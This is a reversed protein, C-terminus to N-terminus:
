CCSNKIGRFFPAELIAPDQATLASPGRLNDTLFRDLQALVEARSFPTTLLDDAEGSELLPDGEQDDLSTICIRAPLAHTPSGALAKAYLKLIEPSGFIVDAYNMHTATLNSSDEKRTTINSEHLYRTLSNQTASGDLAIMAHLPRKPRIAPSAPKLIKAPLNFSFRSGEDLASKVSIEGNMDRVIKSCIALGLGSGGFKRTTSQDEQTFAEFIQRQKEPAIGIGTDTVSFEIADPGDPRKLMQVSVLISGKETFKIANNVLNSLLQNLRTPDGEIEEPTDTSIHAALDLGESRAREYFLSVVDDIIDSPRVPIAELALQGAEIKSLDLIDNIIALLSDGSKVILDAYRQQRKGLSSNSLLQALVMMGNMPTRIEHSMTALFESKTRSAAEAAEKANNLQETRKRVMERLNQRNTRLQQDREQIYNLM